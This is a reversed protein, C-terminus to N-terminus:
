FAESIGISLTNGSKGFGYDIRYNIPYKKLLRFRLGGGGAPLLDSFSIDSFKRGVGGFGAFAVVGFRGLLGKAPFMLRYEAQTAFMRRDQYRGAAYGRLDNQTGFLCLDYIPVRDGVAACAMGRFAFVQHESLQNYKNFGVKYYQYTWKSGLGQSFLDLNFDMFFGHRPYYVSDRTDWQFRPGISVTQQHLFQERIQDIVDVVQQPPQVTIDSSGLRERNLSLSLNRYQGRAGLYMGKRLGYLFEGLAGGGTVSIPVFIGQDGALKGVGYVDANVTATGIATAVRYKDEKLYLKGGLAVARTGNNTFVGGVGVASAPSIKDKKNFPFLRAVAWELGAGVAPSNIPIPAILWEGKKEDIQAGGKKAQDKQAQDEKPLGPPAQASQAAADATSRSPEKSDATSEGTKAPNIECDTQVSGDQGCTARVQAMATASLFCISFLFLAVTGGALGRPRGGISHENQKWESGQPSTM